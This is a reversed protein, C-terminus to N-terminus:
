SYLEDRLRKFTEKEQDIVSDGLDIESGSKDGMYLENKQLRKLDILLREENTMRKKLISLKEESLIGNKMIALKEESEFGNKVTSLTEESDIRNKVSKKSIELTQHDEWREEEEESSYDM